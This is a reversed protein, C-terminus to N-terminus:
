LINYWEEGRYAIPINRFDSRRRGNELIGEPPKIILYVWLLSTHRYSTNSADAKLWLDKESNYCVPIMNSALSPVNANSTELPMEDCELVEKEVLALVNDTGIAKLKFSFTETATTNSHVNGSSTDNSPLDYNEDIWAKLTYTDTQTGTVSGQAIAHGDLYGIAIYNEFYKITKGENETFNSAVSGNKTLYIKIHDQKLTAGEVIDTLGIAYNITADGTIDSSVTFTMQSNADTNALGEADTEPYRNKILINNQEEFAVTLQGTTIVNETTGTGIFTYAAYSVGVVAILFLLSM